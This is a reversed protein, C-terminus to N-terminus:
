SLAKDADGSPKSVCRMDHKKVYAIATDYDSFEKSAIVPIGHKKFVDQGVKRDLEWAASEDNASVIPIPHDAALGKLDRLYYTNDTNLVLDAWRYWSRFDEIVNVLGRGIHETKPTQRIFHKVEHGDKQARM